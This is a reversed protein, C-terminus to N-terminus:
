GGEEKRERWIISVREEERRDKEVKKRGKEGFLQFEREGWSSSRTRQRDLVEQVSAQGHFTRYVGEDSEEPMRSLLSASERRRKRKKQRKSLQQEEDGGGLGATSPPEYSQRRSGQQQQQTPSLELSVRRSGIERERGRGGRCCVLLLGLVCGELLLLLGHRTVVEERSREVMERMEEVEAELKIVHREREELTEKM